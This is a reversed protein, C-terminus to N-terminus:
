EASTNEGAGTEEVINLYRRIRVYETPTFAIHQAIWFCGLIVIARGAVHWPKRPHIGFTRRWHTSLTRDFRQRRIAHGELAAFGVASVVAWIIWGWNFHDEPKPIRVVIVDRKRSDSPKSM